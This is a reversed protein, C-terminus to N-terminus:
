VKGWMRKFLSLYTGKITDKHNQYCYMVIAMTLSFLIVDGNPIDVVIGRKKLWIWVGELFPSLFYHSMETRRSAAEWFMGPFTCLGGLIVHLPRNGLLNRFLCM